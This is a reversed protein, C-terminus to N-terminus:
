GKSYNENYNGNQEEEEKETSEILSDIKASAEEYTDGSALCLLFILELMTIPEKEM